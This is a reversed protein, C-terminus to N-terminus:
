KIDFITINKSNIDGYSKAKDEILIRDEIKKVKNKGIWTLELKNKRM